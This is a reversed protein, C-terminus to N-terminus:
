RRARDDIVFGFAARRGDRRFVGITQDRVRTISGKGVFVRQGSPRTVTVSAVYTRGRRTAEIMITSSGAPGRLTGSGSISQVVGNRMRVTYGGDRVRGALTLPHKGGAIFVLRQSTGTSRSVRLTVTAPPSAAGSPDTAVYRFTDTGVFAKGPVYTFSGDANLTLRGHSPGSAVTATLVDGDPDVDNALVGPAPVTLAEGKNVDHQDAAATPAHNAARPTVSVPDSPASEGAGNGASVSYQLAKGNELENDIWPGAPSGDPAAVVADIIGGSGNRIVFYDPKAGGGRDWTLTVTGDGPTGRLNVPREPRESPPDSVEVTATAVASVDAKNTIRLSVTYSGPGDFVHTAQPDPSSSDFTGDGDFDWEYKTIQHVQDTSAAASVDVPSGTYASYPGGANATPATAADQITEKLKAAFGELDSAQAYGGGTGTALQEFYSQADTDGGFQLPYIQVPDLSLSKDVVDRLTHNTGPEPDHPPADGILIAVKKADNRFPLGFSTMLGSYVSEPWDGGGSASLADIGTKLTAPDTTFPVDVQAQYPDGLDKYDVLSFRHDPVLEALQTALDNVNGKVTDIVGGMSGTTDIVFSVDLPGTLGKPTISLGLAQAVAHAAQFTDGQDKYAPTTHGSVHALMTVPNRVYIGPPVRFSANCIPELWHCYSFVRGHMSGPWEARPGFIGYYNAAFSGRGSWSKANFYPDGFFTAAVVLDRVAQPVSEKGQLLDGLAQAGQSYGALIFRTRDCRAHAREIEERALRTGQRVSDTYAGVPKIHLFAGAGNLANSLDTFNTPLIGVAPYPVGLGEVTKGNAEVLKKFELFAHNVEFGM